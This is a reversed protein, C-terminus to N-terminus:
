KGDEKIKDINRQITRRSLNLIESVETRNFDEDNKYLAKVKEFNDKNAKDNIIDRIGKTEISNIKIKKAMSVFYDSLKEAKLMSEKSIDESQVDFITTFVHIMLAFRPIYSKQKPYMSKMYENENESNQTDTIKNFIRKWEEKAETSFKIVTPQIEGEDNVNIYANRITDYFSIIKDSYWSIAEYSMENENYKEIEADPFSLLMRDIFGNDKNDDTYLNNLVNPQIGGLVPIHPSQVFSGARTMRNVNVSQGSWTSLWFELDSGERYKNMDKFWGALEDKFVGVSNPNNQHLDVLAELTIDNAIFQTKKPEPIEEYLQKEDKKLGKFHEHKEKQKIYKKIERSNIRMLPFIINQISPTKGIGARGVNSIWISCKEKWGRKIEVEMSNGIIVSIVWLLSCGMYDIVSDLTNHCEMIYNQIPLPFIEIPFQKEDIKIKENVLEEPPEPVIRTGYGDAYIQKAAASFDDKFNKRTYAQFPSYQREADYITGTSFLYMLNDNKYIYGSHPSESGHRKIVYKDKLNSVITFEDSVIDWVQNKQNFDTWPKVGDKQNYKKEEKKPIIIEKPDEYNYFKSCSFLIERDEDSIFDIDSYYKNNIFNEYVFVYGGYGRTELIAEKHGKLKAIKNNGGVRKSKFLLHYGNNRTKAIVFKDEFDLINDKLFSLYEDWFAIQEKATSFVKLDVDICELFNFGTVIGVNDTAIMEKGDKKIYGGKYNYQKELQTKSIKESQYKKWPYNPVKNDAVTILSFGDDLLKFCKSLEIM